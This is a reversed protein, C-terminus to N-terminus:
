DSGNGKIKCSVAGVVDLTSDDSRRLLVDSDPAAKGGCGVDSRRSDNAVRCRVTEFVTMNRKFVWKCQVVTSDHPNTLSNGRMMRGSHELEEEMSERWHKSEPGNLAEELTIDTVNHNEPETICLHNYGFRDPIKRVRKDTVEQNANIISEDSESATSHIIVAVYCQHYM